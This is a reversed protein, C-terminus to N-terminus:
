RGNPCGRAHDYENPRKTENWPLMPQGCERCVEREIAKVIWPRPRRKNGNDAAALHERIAWDYVLSLELETLVRLVAGPQAPYPDLVLALANHVVDVTLGGRPDLLKPRGM